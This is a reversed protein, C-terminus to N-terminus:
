LNLLIKLREEYRESNLRRERAKAKRIAKWRPLHTKLTPLSSSASAKDTKEKGEGDDKVAEEEEASSAPSADVAAKPLPPPLGSPGGGGPARAVESEEKPPPKETANRFWSRCVAYLSSSQSLTTVKRDAFILPPAPPQQNASAVANRAAPAVASNM